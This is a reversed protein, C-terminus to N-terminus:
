KRFHIGAPCYSYFILPPFVFDDLGIDEEFWLWTEPFATRVKLLPQTMEEEEDKDEDEDDAEAKIVVALSKSLMNKADFTHLARLWKVKDDLM